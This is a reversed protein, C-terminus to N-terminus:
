ALKRPSGRQTKISVLPVIPDGLLRILSPPSVNNIQKSLTEGVYVGNTAPDIVVQQVANTIATGPDFDDVTGDALVRGLYNRKVGNIEAFNGGIYYRGDGLPTITNVAVPAAILPPM